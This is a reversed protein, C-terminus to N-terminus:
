YYYNYSQETTQKIAYHDPSQKIHTTTHQLQQERSNLNPNDPKWALGRMRAMVRWGCVVGEGEWGEGGGGGKGDGKGDVGGFSSGSLLLNEEPVLRDAEPFRLDEEEQLFIEEIL